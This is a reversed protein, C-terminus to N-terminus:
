PGSGPVPGCSAGRRLPKASACGSRRSRRRRRAAAGRRALDPQRRQRLVGDWNSGPLYHHVNQGQVVNICGAVICAVGGVSAVVRAWPCSCASCSRGRASSSAPWRRRAGAPRRGGRHRRRHGAGAPLAALGAPAAGPRRARVPLALVAADFPAARGSRRTPGPRAACAARAAPRAGLPPRACPCSAWSSACCCRPPRSPWPPGSRASPRGPSSCRSARVRRAAHLDAATVQWGNAFGDVLQSPGLDVAHSGPPRGPRPRPWRRALGQEREPRARARLAATAGTVDAGHSDIHSAPPTVTPAPGPQTAPLQPTGAATPTPAGPRGRRRGGLRPRAPRHEVGHLHDPHQRVAPQPRRRDGRRPARRGPHHGQRRARLARGAGRRQGAGAPDLGVVAVSIPQGDITLLNSVCNGPLTAPTPSATCAPSASRPSAWRCPSRARGLLLQGRVGAPRRHLHRRLALRHAAAFSVPM